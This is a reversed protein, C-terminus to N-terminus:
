KWETIKRNEPTVAEVPKSSYLDDKFSFEKKKKSNDIGAFFLWKIYIM